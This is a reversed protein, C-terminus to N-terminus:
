FQITFVTGVFSSTLMAVGLTDPGLRSIQQLTQEMNLKRHWLVRKIVLGLLLFTYLTRWIFKPPEYRTIKKILYPTIAENVGRVPDQTGGESFNPEGVSDGASLGLASSDRPSVPRGTRHLGRARLFVRSCGTMRM